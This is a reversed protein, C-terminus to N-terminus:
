SLLATVEAACGWSLSVGAGGHGYNHIIRTGPLHEEELRVQPRVPRLGARHGIVTATGLRPEVAACRAIIARAIAPDPSLDEVGPHAIGGAIVIDGHPLFHTFDAAHGGTDVYWRTIGPNELVVLQGRVPTLSTDGTLARADIGTCNVVTGTVEGLRTVAGQALRGGGATFRGLLYDLYSPMDLLPVTQTGTETDFGTLMRVGTGPQGAQDTLVRLTHEGWSEVKDPPGALYPGWLAGAALSTRGPIRAARITVQHGQEQLSIATTLGIVGAGIVLVSM